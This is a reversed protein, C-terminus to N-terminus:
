LLNSELYEKVFSHTTYLLKKLLRILRKYQGLNGNYVCFNLKFIYVSLFASCM